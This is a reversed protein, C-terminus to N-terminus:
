VLWLQGSYCKWCSLRIGVLGCPEIAIADLTFEKASAEKQRTGERAGERENAKDALLECVCVCACM